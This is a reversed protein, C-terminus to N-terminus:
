GVVRASVRALEQQQRQVAAWTHEIYQRMVGIDGFARDRGRISLRVDGLTNVDVFGRTGPTTLLIQELQAALQEWAPADTPLQDQGSQVYRAWRLLSTPGDVATIRRDS